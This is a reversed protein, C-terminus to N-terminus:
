LVGKLLTAMEEVPRSVEICLSDFLLIHEKTARSDLFRQERVWRTYLRKQGDRIFARVPTLPPEEYDLADARFEWTWAESTCDELVFTSVFPERPRLGLVYESAHSFNKEIWRKMVFEYEDDGFTHTNVILQKELDSKLPPLTPIYGQALGGTDFASASLRDDDSGGTQYAVVLDGFAPFTRNVYYYVSRPLGLIAESQLTKPGSPLGAFGFTLRRYLTEMWSLAGLIPIDDTPRLGQTLM